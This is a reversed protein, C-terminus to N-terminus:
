GELLLLSAATVSDIVKGSRVMKIADKLKVPYVKILEGRELRQKTKKLGTAVFVYQFDNSIHPASYFKGILKMKSAKYGLEEEIEKFANQLPTEGKEIKGGSLQYIWKRIPRRYQKILLITDANIFPIINTGPRKVLSAFEATSGDPLRWKEVRLSFKKNRFAIM